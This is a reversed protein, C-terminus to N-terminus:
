KGSGPLQGQRKAPTPTAPIPAVLPRKASGKARAKQDAATSRAEKEQPTLQRFFSSISPQSQFSMKHAQWAKNILVLDVGRSVFCFLNTVRVVARLKKQRWFTRNQPYVNTVSTWFDNIQGIFSRKPRWGSNMLSGKTASRYNPRFSTLPTLLTV